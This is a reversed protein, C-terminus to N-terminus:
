QFLFFMQFRIMQQVILFCKMFRNCKVKDRKTILYNKDCKTLLKFSPTYKLLWFVWQNLTM